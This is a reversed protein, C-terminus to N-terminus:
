PSSEFSASEVLYIRSTETEETYLNPRQPSRFNLRESLVKHEIDNFVAVLQLESLSIIM